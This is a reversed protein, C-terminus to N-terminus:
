RRVAGGGAPVCSGRAHQSPFLSQLGDPRLLALAFNASQVEAQLSVPHEQLHPLFSCHSCGAQPSCLWLFAPQSSRHSCAPPWLLDLWPLKGASVACHWWRTAALMAPPACGCRGSPPLLVVWMCGAPSSSLSALLALTCALVKLSRYPQKWQGKPVTDFGCSYSFPKEVSFAAVMEDTLGELALSDSIATAEFGSQKVAQLPHM